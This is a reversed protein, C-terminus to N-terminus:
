ARQKRRMAGLGALGIGLLALSAPEPVQAILGRVLFTESAGNDRHSADPALPSHWIYGSQTDSMDCHDYVTNFYTSACKVSQNPNTFATVLDNISAFSATWDADSAFTFGHHLQVVGCSSGEGACPGAYVWELGGATVILSPDPEQGLLALASASTALGMTLITLTITALKKMKQKGLSM